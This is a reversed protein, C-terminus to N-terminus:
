RPHQPQNMKDPLSRPPWPANPKPLFYMDDDSHHQLVTGIAKTALACLRSHIFTLVSPGLHRQLPRHVGPASESSTWRARPHGHLPPYPSPVSAAINRDPASRTSKPATDLLRRVHWDHPGIGRSILANSLHYCSSRNGLCHSLSSSPPGGHVM